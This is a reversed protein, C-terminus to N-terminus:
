FLVKVCIFCNLVLLSDVGNWSLTKTIIRNAMELSEEPKDIPVVHGTASRHRAVIMGKM